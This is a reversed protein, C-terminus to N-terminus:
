ALITRRTLMDELERIDWAEKTLRKGLAVELYLHSTYNAACSNDTEMAEQDSREAAETAERAALERAEREEQSAIYNAAIM